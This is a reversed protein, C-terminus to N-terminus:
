SGSEPTPIYPFGRFHTLNSFKSSCVAQTKSCGPWIDFTDGPAPTNPFPPAVTVTGDALAYSKVTRILGDNAGSTFELGGQDFYGDAQSLSSLIVSSTSGSDVTNNLTFAAKVLTCGADYLNHLCGPQYVNKPMPRKFLVMDSEVSIAITTRSPQVTAVRGWFSVLTGLTWDTWSPAFARELAILAGDLYGQTAQQTWPFGSVTALVSCNLALALSDVETGIVTKVPGRNFTPRTTGSADIGGAKFTHSLGDVQSVITIDVSASTLYVASGTLPQITLLDAIVYQDSGNLLAILGASANKM